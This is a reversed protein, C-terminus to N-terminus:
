LIYFIVIPLREFAFLCLWSQRVGVALPPISITSTGAAEKKARLIILDLAYLMINIFIYSIININNLINVWFTM